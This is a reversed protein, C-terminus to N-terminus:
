EGLGEPQIRVCPFWLRPGTRALVVPESISSHLTRSASWPEMGAFSQGYFASGNKHLRDAM